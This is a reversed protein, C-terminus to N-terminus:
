PKKDRFAWKPDNRLRKLESSPIKKRKGVTVFRLEQNNIMRTITDESTNLNEAAAPRSWLPDDEAPQNVVSSTSAPVTLVALGPQAELARRVAAEFADPNLTAYPQKRQAWVIIQNLLDDTASRLGEPPQSDRRRQVTEVVGAFVDIAWQIATADSAAFPGQGAHEPPGHYAFLGTREAALVAREIRDRDLASFWAPYEFTYDDEDM